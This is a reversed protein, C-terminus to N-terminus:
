TSSTATPTTIPASSITSAAARRRSNRAGRSRRRVKGAAGRGPARGAGYYNNWWDQEPLVFGDMSVYGAEAVIQCNREISGMGPYSRAWYEAARRASRAGALDTRIRRDMRGAEPVQAMGRSWRRIGRYLDRGRVLDSRIVRRRFGHRVDLHQGDDRAASSGGRRRTRDARRPIAPPYRGRGDLRRHRSGARDDARRSRMRRRSNASGGAARSGSRARAVHGRRLRTGPAPTRRDIGPFYEDGGPFVAAHVRPFEFSDRARRGAGSTLRAAQRRRIAPSRLRRVM